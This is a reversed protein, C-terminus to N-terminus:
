ASNMSIQFHVFAPLHSIIGWTLCLTYSMSFLRGTFFPMEAGAAPAKVKLVARLKSLCQALCQVCLARSPGQRLHPASQSTCLLTIATPAPAGMFGAGLESRWCDCGPRNRCCIGVLAQGCGKGVWSPLPTCHPTLHHLNTIPLSLVQRPLYIRGLAVPGFRLSHHQSRRSNEIGHM